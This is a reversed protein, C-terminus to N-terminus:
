MGVPIFGSGPKVGSQICVEGKLATIGGNIWYGQTVWALSTVPTLDM